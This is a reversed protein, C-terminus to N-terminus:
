SWDICFELCNRRRIQLRMCKRVEDVRTSEGIVGHEVCAKDSEVVGPYRRQAILLDECSINTAIETAPSERRLNDNKSDQSSAEPDCEWSLKCTLMDHPTPSAYSTCCTGRVSV